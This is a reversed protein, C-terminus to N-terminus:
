RQQEDLVGLEGLLRLNGEIEAMVAARLDRKGPKFDIIDVSYGAYAFVHGIGRGMRGAGLAAIKM